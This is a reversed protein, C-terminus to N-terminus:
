TYLFIVGIKVGNKARLIVEIKGRNKGKFFTSLFNKQSRPGQALFHGVKHRKEFLSCFHGWFHRFNGTEASRVRIEGSKQVKCCNKYTSFHSFLQCFLEVTNFFKKYRRPGPKAFKLRLSGWRTYVPYLGRRAEWKEHPAQGTRIGHMRVAQKTSLTNTTDSM